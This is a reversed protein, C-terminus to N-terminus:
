ILYFVHNWVAEMKITNTADLSNHRLPAIKRDTRIQFGTMHRLYRVHKNVGCVHIDLRFASAWTSNTVTDRIVAM